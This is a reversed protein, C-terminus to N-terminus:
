GRIRRMKMVCNEASDYLAKITIDANLWDQENLSIPLGIALCRFLQIEFTDGNGRKQSALIAGFEPFVSTSSGVTILDSGTNVKRVYFYATDGATLGITGSGGTLELGFGTLETASTATITVASALLSLDDDQFEKDVGEDFDYDSMCYVNVTSTTVAKVVYLGSKLDAESGTKAAVSAIGTTASMVSTGKKNTLTGVNGTTEAANETSSAGLFKEFAFNPLEKITGTLATDIVGAESDWPYRSSGGFIDNFQGTLATSLSGLVKMIGYPEYTERNYLTLSHVGYLLQPKSLPM